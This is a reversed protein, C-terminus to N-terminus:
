PAICCVDCDYAPLITLGNCAVVGCLNGGQSGCSPVCSGSMRVSHPPNCPTDNGPPTDGDATLYFRDLRDGDADKAVLLEHPGAAFDFILPTGYNTNEHLPAWFWDEGTTMRWVFWPAGDLQMWFTNHQADPAHIRSFVLYTGPTSVEFAYRARAAGPEDNSAVGAPPEICAGASATSDSAITFGGTLQGSEAEFYFGTSAEVIWAGVSTSSADCGELAVFTMFAASRTLGVFRRSPNV